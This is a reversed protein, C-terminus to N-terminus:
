TKLKAHLVKIKATVVSTGTELLRPLCYQGILLRSLVLDIVLFPFPPTIKLSNIRLRYVEIDRTLVQGIFMSMEYLKEKIDIFTTLMFYVILM